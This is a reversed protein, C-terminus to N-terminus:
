SLHNEFLKKDCNEIRVYDEWFQIGKQRMNEYEPNVILSNFDYKSQKENIICFDKWDVTNSFPYETMGSVIPITGAMLAQYLRFSSTGIGRPAFAYRSRALRLCFDKLMAVRAKTDKVGWIPTTIDLDYKDLQIEALWQRSAYRIQGVYVFDYVKKTNRCEEIFDLDSILELEYHRMQLPTAHINAQKNAHSSMLPQSLFKKSYPEAYAFKPSDHMSWFVFKNSMRQFINTQRITEYDRDCKLYDLNGLIWDAEEYDSTYIIKKLNSSFPRGLIKDQLIEETGNFVAVKLM